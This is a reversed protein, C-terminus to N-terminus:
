KKEICMGITLGLLMGLSIGLGMDCIGICSCVTGFCMGLCMGLAGFDEQKAIQTEKTNEEQLTVRKKGQHHIAGIAIALGIIVLPAAAMIFDLM